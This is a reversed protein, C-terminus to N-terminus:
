RSGPARARVSATVGSTSVDQEPQAAYRNAVPDVYPRVEAQVRHGDGRVLWVDTEPTVDHLDVQRVFAFLDLELADDVSRVRRLSVVLPTERESLRLLDAPVDPGSGAPEAFVEGDQVRTTPGKDFWRSVVAEVVRGQDGNRLLWASLRAHVPLDGVLAEERGDLLATWTAVLQQWTTPDMREVDDLFLPLDHLLLGTLWREVLDAGRGELERRTAEVADTWGPLDALHSAMHGFARGTGRDHATYTTDRLVQVGRAAVVAQVVQPDTGVGGVVPTWAGTRFLVGEVRAGAVAWPAAHVSPGGTEAGHRLDALWAEDPGAGPRAVRGMVVDSGTSQQAALLTGIAEAPLTHAGQVLYVLEGAAAAAGQNRADALTACAELLRVRRDETEHRRATELVSPSAAGVPVVLVELRAHTQSRVSGLAEDLFPSQTASATVVVTVLPGTRRRAADRVRALVTRVPSTM